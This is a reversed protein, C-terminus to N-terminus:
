ISLLGDIVEKGGGGTYGEFRLGSGVFIRATEGVPVPAGDADLVRVTTGLAARGATSPEATLDAPTAITAVAVETSGYVNYPVPRLGGPPGPVPPAGPASGSSAIVRLSSTDYRARVAEGVDLIRRLMLPVVVLVSVAHREIAALTAEPDFVPALVATSSLSM